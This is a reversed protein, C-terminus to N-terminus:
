GLHRTTITPSQTFLLDWSWDLVKRLIRKSGLFETIKQNTKFRGHIKIQNLKAKLTKLVTGFVGVMKHIVKIKMIWAERM